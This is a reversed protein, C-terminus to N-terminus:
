ASFYQMRRGPWSVFARVHPVVTHPSLHKGESLKNPQLLARTHQSGQGSADHLHWLHLLQRFRPMCEVLSAIGSAAQQRGPPTSASLTILPHSGVQQTRKNRGTHTTANASPLASSSTAQM